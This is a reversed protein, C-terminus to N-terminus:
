PVVVGGGRHHHRGASDGSRFLRRRHHPPRHPRHKRLDGDRAPHPTELWGVALPEASVVRESLAPPLADMLQEYHTHTLGDAQAFHESTNIGIRQPNREAILDALRQWQDPQAEPDWAKRFTDGVDYRAVALCEVTDAGAPHHMLLMTTRRASLWTPPLLTCLVPDENYERAIVLWLDIGSREMLEPLLTRVREQLLEEQVQAREQLPLIRPLASQAVLSTQFLLFLAFTLLFRNM